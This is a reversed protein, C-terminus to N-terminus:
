AIKETRSTVLDFINCYNFLPSHKQKFEQNWNKKEQHKERLSQNVCYIDSKVEHKAWKKFLIM